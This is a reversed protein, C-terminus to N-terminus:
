CYWYCHLPELIDGVLARQYFKRQLMQVTQRVSAHQVTMHPVLRIIIDYVPSRICTTMRSAQPLM